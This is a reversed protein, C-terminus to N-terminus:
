ACIINLFLYHYFVMKKRWNKNPVFSVKGMQKNSFYAINRYEKNNWESPLYNDIRLLKVHIRSM